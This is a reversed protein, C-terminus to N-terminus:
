TDEPRDSDSLGRRIEAREARWQAWEIAGHRAWACVIEQCCTRCVATCMLGAVGVAKRKELTAHPVEVEISPERRGCMSCQGRLVISM